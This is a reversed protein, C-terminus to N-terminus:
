TLDDLHCIAFHGQLVSMSRQQSGGRSVPLSRLSFHRCFQMDTQLQRKSLFLYSLLLRFHTGKLLPILSNLCVHQILSSLFFALSFLLMYKRVCKLLLSSSTGQHQTKFSDLCKSTHIQVGSFQLPYGLSRPLLNQQWLFHLFLVFVM